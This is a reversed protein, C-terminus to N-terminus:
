EVGYYRTLYAVIKAAQEETIPAGMVNKMKHVEADWGARKLFMSNMPIYDASHCLTCLAKTLEADAGAKLVIGSEDAACAAMSVLVLTAGTLWQLYV